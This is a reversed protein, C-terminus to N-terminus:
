AGARLQDFYAVLKPSFASRDLRLARNMKLAARFDASAADLKGRSLTAHTYRACGRLLYAEASAGSALLRTLLADSTTFDGAAFARYASELVARPDPRPASVEVMKPKVLEKEKQAVQEAVRAIAKEDPKGALQRDFKQAETSPLHADLLHRRYAQVALRASVLAESEIEPAPQPPPQPAAAAQTAAAAEAAPPRAPAGAGVRATQPPPEFPVVIDIPKPQPQPSPTQRAVAPPRAAKVKIADAAAGAFLDRAQMALDAARQYVRIDTGAKANTDLAERLKRQAARYADSRDAGAAVADTQASLARGVAANAERKSAAAANESRRQKESNARGVWERLQAYYPTNQVVGQEESTKWERLAGDLDGLNFRAIGLWFHPTYTIIENRARAAGSENPMEALAHGLAEAAADYNKSRVANVGRNYAEYWKEAGFAPLAAFLLMVLARKM